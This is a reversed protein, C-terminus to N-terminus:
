YITFCSICTIFKSINDNQSQTNSSLCVPCWKGVLEACEEREVEESWEETAAAPATPTRAAVAAYTRTSESTSFVDEQERDESWSTTSLNLDEGGEPDRATEPSESPGGQLRRAIVFLGGRPEWAWAPPPTVAATTLTTTLNATVPAAAKGSQASIQRTTATAAASNIKTSNKQRWAERRIRRRENDPRRRGKKRTVSAAAEQAATSCYLSTEVRGGVTKYSLKAAIGRAVCVSFLEHLLTAPPSAHQVRAPKSPPPPLPLVTAAAASRGGRRAGPLQPTPHRPRAAQPPKSQGALRRGEQDVLPPSPLTAASRRRAGTHLPFPLHPQAASPPQGRGAM